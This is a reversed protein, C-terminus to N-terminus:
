EDITNIDIYGKQLREDIDIGTKTSSDGSQKVVTTELVLDYNHFKLKGTGENGMSDTWNFEVIGNSFKGTIDEAKIPEFYSSKTEFSFTVNDGDVKELNVTLDYYDDKHKDYYQWMGLYDNTLDEILDDDNGSGDDGKRLLKQGHYGALTIPDESSTEEATYLRLEDKYFKLTGIGTNKRDDAWEFNIM